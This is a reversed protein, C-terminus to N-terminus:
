RARVEISVAMGDYMDCKWKPNPPTKVMAAMRAVLM